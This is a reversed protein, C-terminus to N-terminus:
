PPSTFVLDVSASPMARMVELCDGHFIKLGPAEVEPEFNVSQTEIRPEIENDNTPLGSEANVRERAADFWKANQEIGISRRGARMAAVCTSGSGMTNDLVLDGENSYTKILYELLAVPKQFPHWHGVDKPFRLISRPCNKLGFFKKGRTHHAGGMYRMTGGKKVSQPGACVAGQPNYTMRRESRSAHITTGPSFILIDEHLKLPKNAAHMFGTAHGKEWVLAYKLWDLNSTALKTTFPQSGFLVVTGTPKLLRRYQAWLRDLSLAIDGESRTTGYPLDALILDVSGAEIEDMVDLCDGQYLIPVKQVSPRKGMVATDPNLRSACDSDNSSGATEEGTVPSKATLRWREPKAATEVVGPATVALKRMRNYTTGEAITIGNKALAKRVQDATMWNPRLVNLLADDTLSTNRAAQPAALSRARMPEKSSAPMMDACATVGALALIGDRLRAAEARATEAADNAAKLQSEFANGLGQLLEPITQTM